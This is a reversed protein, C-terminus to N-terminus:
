TLSTKRANYQLLSLRGCARTDACATITHLLRGAYVRPGESQGYARTNRRAGWGHLAAGGETAGRRRAAAGRRFVRRPAAYRGGGIVCMVPWDEAESDLRRRIYVQRLDRQLHYNFYNVLCLSDAADILEACGRTKALQRNLCKTIKTHFRSTIIEQRTTDLTHKKLPWLKHRQEHHQRM